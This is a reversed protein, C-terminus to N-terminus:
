TRVCLVGDLHTCRVHLRENLADLSQLLFCGIGIVQSIHVARCACGFLHGLVCGDSICHGFLLLFVLATLERDAAVTFHGGLVTEEGIVVETVTFVGLFIGVVVVALEVQRVDDDIQTIVESVTPGDARLDLEFM